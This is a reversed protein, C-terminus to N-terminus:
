CLPDRPGGPFGEADDIAEEAHAHVDETMDPADEEFRRCTYRDACTTYLVTLGLITDM